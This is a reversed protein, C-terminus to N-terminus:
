PEEIAGNRARVRDLLGRLLNALMTRQGVLGAAFAVELDVSVAECLAVREAPDLLPLLQRIAFWALAAARTRVDADHEHMLRRSEALVAPIRGPPDQLAATAADDLADIESQAV